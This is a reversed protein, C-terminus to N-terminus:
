QNMIHCLAKWITMELIFSSAGQWHYPWSGSHMKNKSTIAPLINTFEQNACVENVENLFNLELEYLRNQRPLTAGPSPPPTSTAVNGQIRSRINRNFALYHLSYLHSGFHILWEWWESILCLIMCYNLFSKLNRSANANQCDLKGAVPDEQMNPHFFFAFIHCTCLNLSYLFDTWSKM